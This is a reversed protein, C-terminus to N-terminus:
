IRLCNSPAVNQNQNKNKLHKYFVIHKYFVNENM